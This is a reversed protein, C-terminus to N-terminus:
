CLYLDKPCEFFFHVINCFCCYYDIDLHFHELTDKVPYMRHAIKFSVKTKNSVCFRSLVGWFHEWEFSPFM